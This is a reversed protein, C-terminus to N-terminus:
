CQDASASTLGPRTKTTAVKADSWSCLKDTQDTQAQLIGRQRDQRLPLDPGHVGGVAQPAAVAFLFVRHGGQIIISVGGLGGLCPEHQLEAIPAGQQHTIYM